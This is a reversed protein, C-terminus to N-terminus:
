RRSDYSIRHDPTSSYATGNIPLTSAIDSLTIRVKVDSDISKVEIIQDTTATDANIIYSVGGVKNPIRYDTEVRGNEPAVLYMDTITTGMMNGIDSFEDKIVVKSPEQILIDDASLHVLTFFGLFIASFIIYGVTISVADDRDFPLEM